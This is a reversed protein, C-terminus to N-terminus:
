QGEQPTTARAPRHTPTPTLLRDLLAAVLRPKQATAEIPQHRSCYAGMHCAEDHALQWGVAAGLLMDDTVLRASGEAVQAPRPNTM